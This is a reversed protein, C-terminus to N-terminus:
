RRSVFRAAPSRVPGGPRNFFTSCHIYCLGFPAFVDGFVDEIQPLELVQQARQLEAGLGDERLEDLRALVDGLLLLVEEQEPVHVDDIQEVLLALVLLAVQLMREVEDGVHVVEVELQELEGHPGM